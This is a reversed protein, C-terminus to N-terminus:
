SLNNISPNGFPIPIPKANIIMDKTINEIRKKIGFIAIKIDNDLYLVKPFESCQGIFIQKEESWEVCYHYIKLYQDRILLARCLESAQKADARLSNIEQHTLYYEDQIAM